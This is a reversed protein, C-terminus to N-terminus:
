RGVPVHLKAVAEAVKREDRRDYIAVTAVSAHRAAKAVTSLDEGLELLSTVFHVRGTTRCRASRPCADFLEVLTAGGSASRVM